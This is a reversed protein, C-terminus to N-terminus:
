NSAYERKAKRVEDEYVDRSIKGSRYDQKLDRLKNGYEEKLNHVIRKYEAKSIRKDRYASKASALTWRVRETKVPTVVPATQSKGTKESIKAPPRTGERAKGSVGPKTTEIVDSDTQSSVDAEKKGINIARYIMMGVFVVAIAALTYIVYKPIGGGRRSTGSQPMRHHMGGYPFMLENGKEGSAAVSEPILRPTAFRPISYLRIAQPIGKLEKYGVEQAPVEAKNMAM